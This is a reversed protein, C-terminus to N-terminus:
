SNELPVDEQLGRGARRFCWGAALLAWLTLTQLAPVLTRCLVPEPLGPDLTCSSKSLSLVLVFRFHLRAVGPFVPFCRIPLQLSQVVGHSGQRGCWGTAPGLLWPCPVLGLPLHPDLVGKCM